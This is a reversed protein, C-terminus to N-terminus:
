AYEKYQFGLLGFILGLIRCLYMLVKYFSKKTLTILGLLSISLMIFDLLFKALLFSLGVILGYAKKYILNSSAGYRFNRKLFWLFSERKNNKEEIVVAKTNWMMKFGM